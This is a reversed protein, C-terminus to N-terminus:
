FFTKLAKSVREVDNETMEPFLPISLAQSYFTEMNPCDTEKGFRKFASLRYLPIYHVQTGIGAEKLKEMVERRNKKLAEFDILVVMLHYSTLSDFSPDSLKLHPVGTLHARYSAVLKSRKQNLTDIKKLQSLGLAAQFETFNYNGSLTAVDYEWPNEQGKRQIGNNRYLRLKEVLDERNTLVIGGEGTTIQKAPHFSFITMDSYTCSGVKEGTPYSSGFACAGDEIIVAESKKVYSYLRRMNVAIGAYHIPVLVVKGRTMPRDIVEELHDLSLNGSKLDIDSFIIQAGKKFPAALTGVFTNPSTIVRDSSTVNAANFAGDLASTGSNFVVGFQAGCRKACETEFEEVLTGRTIIDRQLAESVSKLDDSNISQKSYPLFNQTM